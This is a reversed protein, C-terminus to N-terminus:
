EVVRIAAALDDSGVTAPFRCDFSRYKGSVDVVTFIIIGVRIQRVALRSIVIRLPGFCIQIRFEAPLDNRLNTWGNAYSFIQRQSRLFGFHVIPHRAGSGVSIALDM